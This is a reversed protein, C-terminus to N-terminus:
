SVLITEKSWESDDMELNSLIEEVSSASFCKNIQALRNSLIFESNPKPCFENIVNDIDKNDKSDLLAKEIKPLNCSHCYHTALGAHLM